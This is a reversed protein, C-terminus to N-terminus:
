FNVRLQGVNNPSIYPPPNPRLYPNCREITARANQLITDTPTTCQNALSRLTTKEATAYQVMQVGNKGTSEVPSLEGKDVNPHQLCFTTSLFIALILLLGTPIFIASVIENLYNRIPVSSKKPRAWQWEVRESSGLTARDIVNMSPGRRASEQHVSRNESILKFSCWDLMFDADRFIKEKTTRKYDKPCHSIKRLPKVEDELNHLTHSFPVSSGLKVVVGETESPNLPLRAGEEVASVLYTVHLDDAEPWLDTRFINLLREIHHSNFTHEVNLNDIKLYVEYNTANEKQIVNMNLIRYDTEYTKKNLEVIGLSFNTQDKPAVGYLYGQHHHNSYTYHIWPPLDPANLLSAQYSFENKRDISSRNFIEPGIPIVFVKSTIITKAISAHIIFLFLFLSILM